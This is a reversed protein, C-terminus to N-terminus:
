DTELSLIHGRLHHIELELADLGFSEIARPAVERLNWRSVGTGAAM